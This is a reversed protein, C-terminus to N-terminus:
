NAPIWSIQNRLMKLNINKQNKNSRTRNTKTVFLNRNRGSRQHRKDKLAKTLVAVQGLLDAMRQTLRWLDEDRADILAQHKKRELESASLSGEMKAISERLFVTEERMSKM